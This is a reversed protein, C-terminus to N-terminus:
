NGIKLGANRRGSDEVELGKSNSMPRAKGTGWDIRGDTGDDDWPLILFCIQNQYRTFYIDIEVGSFFLVQYM